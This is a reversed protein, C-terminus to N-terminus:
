LGATDRHRDIREEGLFVVAEDHRVAAGTHKNNRLSLLAVIMVLKLADYFVSAVGSSFSEEVADVDSTVRTLLTGVPHRDFYSLGMKQLHAFVDQRLSFGIRQGTLVTVFQQLGRAVSGLFAVGALIMAYALVGSASKDRVPGDIAAGVLKPVSLDLVGVLVMVTITGIVLGRHASVYRLLRKLVRPSPTPQSMTPRPTASATRAPIM